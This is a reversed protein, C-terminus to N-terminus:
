PTLLFLINWASDTRWLSHYSQLTLFNRYEMQSSIELYNWLVKMLKQVQILPSVIAVDETPSIITAALSLKPGTTTRSGLLDWGHGSSNYRHQYNILKPTLLPQKAWASILGNWRNPAIWLHKCIGGRKVIFWEVLSLFLLTPDSNWM